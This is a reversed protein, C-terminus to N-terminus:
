NLRSAVRAALHPGIQVIIVALLILLAGTWSVLPLREGLLLFAALAAFLTETSVIVAAEAPPTHRMAVALLTFTLASSLLGVFAIEVWAARIAALSIPEFLGAGALGLTAVVSFQIATFTIPRTHRTGESTIIVHASWFVASIAILLDGMSFSGLTGGGLLWTGVFSLAAAPWAFVSPTRRLALWILFPTIVVYLATLFGANTVTASVIGWQQFTAATFFALGGLVAISLLGRPLGEGRARGERFALPALALAAVLARVGVFLLPGIHAMATKQFVFALGWVAAAFVLLLDAHIRRM